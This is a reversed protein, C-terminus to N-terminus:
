GSRILFKDITKYLITLYIIKQKFYIIFIYILIPLINNMMIKKLIFFIYNNLKIYVICYEFILFLFLYHLYYKM